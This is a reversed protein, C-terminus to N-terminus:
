GSANARLLGQRVVIYCAHAWSLPVVWRATGTRADVQEALLGAPTRDRIVERLTQAAERSQGLNLQHWAMWLMALPWPNGGRYRDGAYRLFRGHGTSLRNALNATTALLREDTPPLVKFPASLGLLSIDAIFDDKASAGARNPIIARALAGDNNTPWRDLALRLNGVADDLLAAAHPDYDKARKGWAIASALLSALTYLHQGFQDEWLNQTPPPWGHSSALRRITRFADVATVLGRKELLPDHKIALHQDLAWLITGTGDLQHESWAPAPAGDAYYRQAWVGNPRQVRLSWQFFNRAAASRGASDLAHAIYAGDRPWCFAYGGSSRNDPDIPPAAILAGSRDRLQDIVVLSREYLEHFEDRTRSGNASASTSSRRVKFQRLVNPAADPTGYALLIRVPQGPIPKIHLRGWVRGVYAFPPGKSWNTSRDGPRQSGGAFRVPPPNATIAVAHERHYAVLCGTSPEFRIANDTPSGGVQVHVEWVVASVDPEISAEIELLRGSVYSKQVVRTGTIVQLSETRVIGTSGEYCQSHQWSAGSGLWDIRKGNRPLRVGLRTRIIHQPYDINPAALARLAGTAEFSALMSSGGSIATIDVEPWPRNANFRNVM